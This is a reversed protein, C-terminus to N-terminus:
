NSGGGEQHKTEAIPSEFVDSKNVCPPSEVATIRDCLTDMRRDHQELRDILASNFRVTEQMSETVSDDSPREAITWASAYALLMTVVCGFGCVVTMIASFEKDHRM